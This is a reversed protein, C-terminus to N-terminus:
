GAPKEFRPRMWPEREVKPRLVGPGVLTCYRDLNCPLNRLGIETRARVVGTSGGLSM